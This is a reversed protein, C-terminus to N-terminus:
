EEEESTEGRLAELIEIALEHGVRQYAEHLLVKLMKVRAELKEIHPVVAPLIPSGLLLGMAKGIDQIPEMVEM